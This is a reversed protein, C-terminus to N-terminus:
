SHTHSSRLTDSVNLLSMGVVYKGNSSQASAAVLGQIHTTGTASVQAGVFTTPIGMLPNLRAGM